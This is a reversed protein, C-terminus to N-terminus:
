LNKKDEKRLKYIRKKSNPNHLIKPPCVDKKEIQVNYIFSIKFNNKFQALKRKEYRGILVYPM